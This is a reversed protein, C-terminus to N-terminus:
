AADAMELAGSLSNLGAQGIEVSLEEGVLRAHGPARVAQMYPSRGFLRGDPLPNEFLIPVSSGIMSRNFNDQQASLLHQLQALRAEKVQEEVQDGRVAAPTGPRRSYKFSYAQAYGTERALALTAEFDKDTEGPFGVIFDSSLAMDPRAARLRGITRRYDDVTHKRNMAELVPDSGSQVPLHLFPM